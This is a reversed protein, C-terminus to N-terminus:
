YLTVFRIYIYICICVQVHDCGGNQKAMKAKSNRHFSAAWGFCIALIVKYSSFPKGSWKTNHKPPM